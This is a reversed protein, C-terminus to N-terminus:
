KEEFDFPKGLSDNFKKLQAESLIEKAATLTAKNAGKLAKWTIVVKKVGGETVLSSSAAEELAETYATKIRDVQDETLEYEKATSKYTLAYVGYYQRNLQELRAIQKEDLAEKLKKYVAEFDTAEAVPVPKEDSAIEHIEESAPTPPPAPKPVIREVKAKQEDTLGLEKQVAPMKALFVPPKMAPPTLTVQASAASALTLLAALASHRVLNSLNM